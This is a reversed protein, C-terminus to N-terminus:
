GGKNTSSHAIIADACKFAFETISGMGIESFEADRKKAQEWSLTGGPSAQHIGDIVEGPEYYPEADYIIKALADRSIAVEESPDGFSVEVRTAGAHKFILKAFNIAQDQPFALWAIKKGFEILVLGREDRAVGIRIEGEDHRDLKGDPFKGTAGFRQDRSM